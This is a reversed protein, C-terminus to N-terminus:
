KNKITVWGNKNMTANVDPYHGTKDVEELFNLLQTQEEENFNFKPMAGIGSNLMARIYTAGKNKASYVNTLDPGLYGGMGYIQHCSTCNNKLWINEGKIANASLQLMTTEPKTNYVVFNYVAFISVLVLLVGLYKHTYQKTM